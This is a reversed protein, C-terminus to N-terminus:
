YIKLKAEKLVFKQTLSAIFFLLKTRNQYKKSFWDGQMGQM